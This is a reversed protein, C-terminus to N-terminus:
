MIKKNIWSRAKISDLGAIIIQFQEYFQTDKEEIRCFHPTVKVGKVRENIFKAATEAKSKGVDKERFLFQRNLNSVDITDLDIIHIDKFGSLALNKLLDCGLGGAGIILIKCLNHLFKKPNREEEEATPDFGEKAFPGKRTLIYDLDEWREEEKFEVKPEIKIVEEQSM